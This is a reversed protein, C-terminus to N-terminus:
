LTIRNLVKRGIPGPLRTLTKMLTRETLNPHFLNKADRIVDEDIQARGAAQRFLYDVAHKRAFPYFRKAAEPGLHSALRMNKCIMALQGQGDRGIKSLSGPTDSHIIWCVESCFGIRPHRMAVRWWMDRDEGRAMTTDFLGVEGFVSGHVLYSGTGLNLKIAAKFFDTTGNEAVMRRRVQHSVTVTGKKTGIMTPSGSCWKLHPNARLIARQREIKRPLWEDDADLFAVWEFKVERLGRNRAASVGSNAQHVYRVAQGFSRVVDATNDTSGDNVVIVEDVPSTQNLISGLARRLLAARNFTPVIVSIRM